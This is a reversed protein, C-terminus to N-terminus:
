PCTGPDDGAAAGAREVDTVLAGLLGTLEAAAPPPDGEFAQEVRFKDRLLPGGAEHGADRILEHLRGHVDRFASEAGSRDGAEARAAADCLGILLPRWTSDAGPADGNRDAVFVAVAGVAVIAVVVLAVVVLAVILRRVRVSRAYSGFSSAPRGHISAPHQSVM